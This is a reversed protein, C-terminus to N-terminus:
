HRGVSRAQVHGAAPLAKIALARTPTCFVDLRLSGRRIHQLMPTRGRRAHATAPTRSPLRAQAGRVRHPEGSRPVPKPRLRATSPLVPRACSGRGPVPIAAVRPAWAPTVDHAREAVTCDWNAQNSQELRFKKFRLQLIQLHFMQLHPIGRFLPV